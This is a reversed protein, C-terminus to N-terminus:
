IKVELVLTTVFKFGGLESLLDKIKNRIAYKTNKLELEPNFSNLIDANCISTYAHSQKM